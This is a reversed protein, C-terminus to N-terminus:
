LSVGVAVWTSAILHDHGSVFGPLLMKGDLDFTKTRGGVYANAGDADGVYVIKNGRVAVAEAWPQTEDVTYVKGNTFVYDAPTQPADAQQQCATLGAIALALCVAKFIPNM